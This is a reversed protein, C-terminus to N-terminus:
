EDVFEHIRHLSLNVDRILCEPILRERNVDVAHILLDGFLQLVFVAELHRNGAAVDDLDLTVCYANDLRIADITPSAVDLRALEVGAVYALWLPLLVWRSGGIRGAALGTALAIGMTALAQAATAPGHPAVFGTAVGIAGSALTVALLHIRRDGAIAAM